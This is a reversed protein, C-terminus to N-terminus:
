LRTTYVSAQDGRRKGSGRERLAAPSPRGTEAALRLDRRDRAPSDSLKKGLSSRRERSSSRQELTGSLTAGSGTAAGSLSELRRQSAPPLLPVRTPGYGQLLPEFFLTEMEGRPVITMLLIHDLSRTKPEFRFGRKGEAAILALGKKGDSYDVWHHAYFVNERMRELGAGPGFPERSLDRDEAGFPVGAYLSGEFDFPVNVAFYGNGGQSEVTLDFDIREISHYLSVRMGVKHAGLEGEM